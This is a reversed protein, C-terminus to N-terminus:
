EEGTKKEKQSSVSDTLAKMSLQQGHGAAAWVTWQSQRDDRCATTDWVFSLNQKKGGVRVPEKVGGSKWCVCVCMGHDNIHALTM